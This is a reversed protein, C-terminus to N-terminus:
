RQTRLGARGVSGPFNLCQRYKATYVLVTALVPREGGCGGCGARQDVAHFRGSAVDISRARRTAHNNESAVSTLSPPIMPNEQEGAKTLEPGAQRSFSAPARVPRLVDPRRMVDPGRGRRVSHSLARPETTMSRRRGSRRRERRWSRLFRGDPSLLAAAAM